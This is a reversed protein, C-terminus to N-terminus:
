AARATAARVDQAAERAKMLVPRLDEAPNARHAVVADPMLIKKQIPRQVVTSEAAGLEAFYAPALTVGAGAAVMLMLARPTGDSAECVDAFRYGGGEALTRIRDHCIGCATRPFVVLTQARLDQPRLVKRSTLPHAAPLFAVLPEGEFLTELELRDYAKGEGRYIIGLDLQGDQLQHIQSTCVAHTMRVTANTVRDTLASVFQMVDDIPLLPTCGVRLVSTGGALRTRAVAGDLQDLLARAQEELVRGAETLSVSRRNRDFLKVGVGDELKRIAQSLAPQAMYLRRAARGFHLEESLALFYRLQRLEVNPPTGPTGM